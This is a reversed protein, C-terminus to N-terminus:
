RMIDFLSKKGQYFIKRFKIIFKLNIYWSRGLKGITKTMQGLKNGQIRINKESKM